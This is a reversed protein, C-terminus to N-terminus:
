EGFDYDEVVVDPDDDDFAENLLAGGILGAAGAGILAGAGFRRGGHEGHHGGYHHDGHHGPYGQHPYGQQPYGYPAGQPYGSQPYGPQPYGPQPYGPQPQPYGEQAPTYYPPATTQVRQACANCADVPRPTGWQPSWLVPGAAPGHSPDFFCLMPQGAPPPAAPTYGAPQPGPAGPAPPVFTAPGAPAPGTGSHPPPPPSVPGDFAPPGPVAGPPVAGTQPQSPFADAPRPAAPAPARSPIEVGYDAAIGALGTTYGQGIARFKWEAGHRYLEGFVVATEVTLGRGDLDYRALEAGGDGDAVRVHASQVQGFGLGAAGSGPFSVAFVVKDVEEPVRALDVEIQEDDGGAAAAGSGAHRVSGDPSTLNDLFVVHRASLARGDQGCLLAGAEPGGPAPQGPQWGLGVTVATLGPAQKTLSVNGGKTLRVVM